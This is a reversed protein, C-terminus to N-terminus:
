VSPVYLTLSEGTSRDDKVTPAGVKSHGNGPTHQSDFIKRSSSVLQWRAFFSSMKYATRMPRFGLIVCEDRSGRRIKFRLAARGHLGILAKGGQV